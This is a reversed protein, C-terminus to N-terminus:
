GLVELQDADHAVDDVQRESVAMGLLPPLSVRGGRAGGVERAAAQQRRREEQREVPWAPDLEPAM